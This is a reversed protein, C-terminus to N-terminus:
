DRTKKRERERERKIEIFVPVCVRRGGLHGTCGHTAVVLCQQPTTLLTDKCGEGHSVGSHVRRFLRSARLMVILVSSWYPSASDLVVMLELRTLGTPYRWRECIALGLDRRVSMLPQRSGVLRWGEKTSPVTRRYKQQM